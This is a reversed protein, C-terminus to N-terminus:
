KTGGGIQFLVHSIADMVDTALVSMPSHGNQVLFDAAKGHIWVANSIAAQVSRHQMFFAVIMGTLVDGSGGKALAPNGTTNVYQNGDPTTVITYPGKLVVYVGYDIAFQQSVRLRDKEVDQISIGLMRAMEGPHPTVITPSTRKKVLSAYENWFFLADADLVVPVDQELM